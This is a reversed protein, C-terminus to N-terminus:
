KFSYPHVAVSFSVDEVVKSKSTDTYIADEKEIYMVYFQRSCFTSDTRISCMSLALLVCVDCFCCTKILVLRADIDSLACFLNASKCAAAKDM